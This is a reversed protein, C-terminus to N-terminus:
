CVISPLASSPPRHLKKEAVAGRLRAHVSGPGILGHQAAVVRAHAGVAVVRGHHQEGQGNQGDTGQHNVRGRNRQGVARAVARRLIVKQHAMQARNRDPHARGVHHAANRHAHPVLERGPEHARGHHKQKQHQQRADALRDVARSAPDVQANEVQLDSLKGLEGDQEARCGKGHAALVVHM